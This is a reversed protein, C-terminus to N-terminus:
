GTKCVWSRVHNGLLIMLQTICPSLTAYPLSGVLHLQLVQLRLPVCVLYVCLQMHCREILFLRKGSLCHRATGADLQKSSPLAHHRGSILLEKPEPLVNLYSTSGTASVDQLLKIQIHPGYILWLTQRQICCAPVKRPRSSGLRASTCCRDAAKASLPNM